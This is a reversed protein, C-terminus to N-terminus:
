VLDLQHAAFRPARIPPGVVLRGFVREVEKAHRTYLDEAQERPLHQICSLVRHREWRTKIRLDDALWRRAQELYSLMYSPDSPAYDDFVDCAYDRVDELAAAARFAQRREICAPCVGCHRKGSVRLSTHVCSRSGQAWTIMRPLAILGRVMEAKTHNLFPLQFSLPKGFISSLFRSVKHLFGPHAGRTTLGDVLGGETLPVNIAGVGNEFLEVVALDLADAVIGAGCCFLFARARQSQEQEKMMGAVGKDFRAHFSAHYFGPVAQLLGKLTALQSVCTQRIASQHAVTLLLHTHDGDILRNAFGAASDLGGSYLSVRTPRVGEFEFPRQVSSSRHPGARGCFSVLWTDGTLFCLLETLANAADEHKWFAPDFVEFAVRLTRIGCENHPDRPRKHTRDIAYVGAAICLLDMSRQSPRELLGHLMREAGIRLRQDVGGRLSVVGDDYRVAVVQPSEARM